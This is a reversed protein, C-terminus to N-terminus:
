KEKNKKRSRSEKLGMEREAIEREDGRRKKENEEM